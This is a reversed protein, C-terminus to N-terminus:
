LANSKEWIYVFDEDALSLHMLLRGGTIEVATVTEAGLQMDTDSACFSANDSNVRIVKQYLRNKDFSYLATRECFGPENKRFYKLTNTQEDEFHITMILDPNPRPLEKNQYFINTFLWLGILSIM